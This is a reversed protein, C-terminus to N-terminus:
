AAEKEPYPWAPFLTTRVDRDLQDRDIEHTVAPESFVSEPTRRYTRFYQAPEYAIGKAKAYQLLKKAVQM